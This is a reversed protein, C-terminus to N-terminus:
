ERRSPMLILLIFCKWLLRMLTKNWLSPPRFLEALSHENTERRGSSGAPKGWCFIESPGACPARSWSVSVPGAGLTERQQLPKSLTPASDATRRTAANRYIDMHHCKCVIIQGSAQKERKIYGPEEPTQARSSSCGECAPPAVLGHKCPTPPQAEGSCSGPGRECKRPAPCSLETPGRASLLRMM